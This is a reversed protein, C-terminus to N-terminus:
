HSACGIKGFGFVLAGFSIWFLWPSGQAMLVSGVTLLTAMVALVLFAKLFNM